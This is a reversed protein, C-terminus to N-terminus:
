LNNEAIKNKADLQKNLNAIKRKIVDCLELVANSNMDEVDDFTRITAYKCKRVVTQMRENYETYGEILENNETVYMVYYYDYEDFSARDYYFPNNELKLYTQTKDSQQLVTVLTPLLETKVRERLQKFVKRRKDNIEYNQKVLEDLTLNETTNM